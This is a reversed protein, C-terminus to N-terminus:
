TDLAYDEVHDEVTAPDIDVADYTICLGPYERLYFAFRETIEQILPSPLRPALSALRFPCQSDPRPHSAILWRTAHDPSRALVPALPHWPTVNSATHWNGQRCGTTGVGAYPGRSVLPM